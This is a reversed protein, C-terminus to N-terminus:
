TYTHNLIDGNDATGTESIEVQKNLIQGTLNYVINSATEKTTKAQRVLGTDENIAYETTVRQYSTICADANFSTNTTNIKYEKHYDKTNDLDWDAWERYYVNIYSRENFNDNYVIDNLIIEETIKGQCNNKVFTESTLNNENIIHSSDQYTLDYTNRNYKLVRGKTDFSQNETFSATKATVIFISDTSCIDKRETYNKTNIVQALDNYTYFSYNATEWNDEITTITNELVRGKNDFLNNNITTVIYKDGHDFTTREQSIIRGIDDYIISSDKIYYTKNLGESNTEKITSISATKRGLGNYKINEVIEKTTKGDITTRLYSDMQENSNYKIDETIVQYTHDLNGTEFGASKETINLNTKSTKGQENYENTGTETTIKTKNDTYNETTIRTFGSIQDFKNYKSTYKIDYKKYWLENTDTMNHGAYEIIESKYNIMRGYIDYGSHADLSDKEYIHNVEYINKGKGESYETLKNYQTVQDLDNFGNNHTTVTYSHNLPSNKNESLEKTNVITEIMRGTSDYTINLYDDIVKKGGINYNYDTERIYSKTHGYNNYTYDKTIQDISSNLEIHEIGLDYEKINTEQCSITGYIDYKINENITKVIKGRTLEPKDHKIDYTQINVSKEIQSNKNYRSTTELTYTNNLIINDQTNNKHTERFVTKVYNQREYEDYTIDGHQVTEETIKSNEGSKTIRTYGSVQNYDNFTQSTEITYTKYYAETNGNIDQETIEKKFNLLNGKADYAPLFNNNEDFLETTLIETINRGKDGRITESYILRNYNDYKNNQTNITYTNN